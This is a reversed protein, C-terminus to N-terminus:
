YIAWKPKVLGISRLGLIVGTGIVMGGLARALHQVPVIPILMAFTEEPWTFMFYAVGSATLHAFGMVIWTSLFMAIALKVVNSGNIWRAIMDRTPLIYLLLATWNIMTEGLFIGVRVGNQIARALYIIFTLAIVVAVVMWWKSREKGLMFTGGAIGATIATILGLVPVSATYPAVFIGIITGILNAVSGAIPGLIISNLTLVAHSMPFSGGTGLVVSFPIFALATVVAALVVIFAVPAGDLNAGGLFKVERKQGSEPVNESM